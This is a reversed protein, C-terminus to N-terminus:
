APFTLGTSLMDEDIRGSPHISKWNENCVKYANGYEKEGRRLKGTKDSSRTASDM